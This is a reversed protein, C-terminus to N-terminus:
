TVCLRLREWRFHIKHDNISRETHTAERSPRCQLHGASAQCFFKQDNKVVGLPAAFLICNAHEQSALERVGIEAGYCRCLRLKQDKRFSERRGGKESLHLEMTLTRGSPVAVPPATTSGLRSRCAAM